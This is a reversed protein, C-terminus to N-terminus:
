KRVFLTALEPTDSSGKYIWGTRVVGSGSPGTVPIDVTYRTGFRDVKGVQATNSMVGQRLQVLLDDANNTTFGLASEFVKAKHGGVPHIPNLAYGTLKRPDIIARNAGLLSFAGETIQTAGGGGPPVAHLVLGQRSMFNYVAADLTPGLTKLTQAGLQVGKVLAAPSLMEGAAGAFEGLGPDYDFPKVNLDSIRGINRGGTILGDGIMMWGKVAEGALGITGQAMGKVANPLVTGVFRRGGDPDLVAGLGTSGGFEPSVLDGYDAYVQPTSASIAPAAVSAERYLVGTGGRPGASARLQDIRAREQAEARAAMVQTNQAVVNGGGRRLASLTDDSYGDLPPTELQQGKHILPSGNANTRIGNRGMMMALGERWQDGYRARAIKELTDGSSVTHKDSWSSAADGAGGTSFRVDAGSLSYDRPPLAGGGSYAVDPNDRTVYQGPLRYGADNDEPIPAAPKPRMGDVLSEGLANGFADTAVQTVVIRGGRAAAATLGTALGRLSAAAFSGAAGSNALGALPGTNAWTPQQGNIAPMLNGNDDRMATGGLAQGVMAATASAAVSRWSFQSQLGTAVAIGQTAANGVASRVAANIYVSNSVNGIASGIGAGAGGSVAAMAVSKWSFGDVAGIANGVLQSAISGMAGGVAGAVVGVAAGYSGALAAAGAAATTTGTAVAGMAAAAAGATYITVVVAVVIMLVQGMPGCSDKPVPLHPTTDGIMEAANYPRWTDSNNANTSVNNPIMLTQGVVLDTNGTLGNAEAIRYWLQGDGYAGRAIMELTDGAAVTHQGGSAAIQNGNIPQYGFNFDAMALFRPTGNSNRPKLPDIGVGHRGLVEGNAILQRQVNASQTYTSTLIRGQADNVYTRNNAAMRSDTIGVLHGNADYQYAVSGPNFQTSTGATTGQKYGEYRAWTHTYTNTYSGGDINQHKYGLLNGALDYNGTGDAKRYDINHKATLQGDSRNKLVRQYLMQGNADFRNIRTETGVSEGLPVGENLRAIYGSPLGAGPGSQM